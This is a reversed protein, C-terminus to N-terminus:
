GMVVAMILACSIPILYPIGPSEIELSWKHKILLNDLFVYWFTAAGFVVLYLSFAQMFPEGDTPNLVMFLSILSLFVFDGGPLINFRMLAFWAAMGVMSIVILPVPYNGTYYGAILIPLNIAILPLWITHTKIDRYKWDLYSVVPTYVIFSLTTIWVLLNSQYMHAGGQSQARTTVPACEQCKV